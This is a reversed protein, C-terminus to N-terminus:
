VLYAGVMFAMLASSSGWISLGVASNTDRITSTGNPLKNRIYVSLKLSGGCATIEDGACAMSCNEDPLLNSNVNIDTSCWCERSFELGAYTKGAANCFGLCSLVTMDDSATMSGHRLARVKGATDSDTTENYCGYYHYPLDSVSPVITLPALQAPAAQALCSSINQFHLIVVFLQGLKKLTPSHM